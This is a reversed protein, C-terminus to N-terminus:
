NLSLHLPTNIFLFHSLFHHSAPKQILFSFNRQNSLNGCALLMLEQEKKVKEKKQQAQLHLLLM